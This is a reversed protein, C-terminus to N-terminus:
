CRRRATRVLESSRGPIRWHVPAAGPVPARSRGGAVQSAESGPVALSKSDYGQRLVFESGLSPLASLRSEALTPISRQRSEGAARPPPPTLIPSLMKERERMASFFVQPSHVPLLYFERHQPRFRGTRSEQAGAHDRGRYSTSSNRCQRPSADRGSRSSVSHDLWSRTPLNSRRLLKPRSRKLSVPRLCSPFAQASRSWGNLPKSTTWRWSTNCRSGMDASSETWRGAPLFTESM